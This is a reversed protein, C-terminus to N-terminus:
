HFVEELASSRMNVNKGLKGVIRSTTQDAFPSPVARVELALELKIFEISVSKSTRTITDDMQVFLALHTDYYLFIRSKSSLSLTEPSLLSLVVRSIRRSTSGCIKSFTLRDNFYSEFQKQGCVYICIYYICM